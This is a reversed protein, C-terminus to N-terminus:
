RATVADPRLRADRSFLYVALALALTLAYFGFLWQYATEPAAPDATATVISGTLFQMLAVGGISFFNMLTVGRGILAPPIFSKAHATMVGYGVCAAGILVLAATVAALGSQPAAALFICAGIALIVGASLVWKRTNLWNDLPGYVFSGMAMALAMALTVQGILITDAGYVEALFPGTWLGRIGGATAYYVLTLPIIFWLARIRLVALFGAFGPPGDPDDIREPDRVLLLIALAVLVTAAGLLGVVPRWGYAEAAAAMPAAGIINGLNGLGIFVSAMLAFRAADYGRAIIVYSAMLVPACGIGILAMAAVIATPTWAVAFLAVGAAAVLMFLATTRRPGFRDLAVGVAFQMLAFAAFWVGSALSLDAKTMGLDAGLAPTLVALFSRYFQSFVYALCLAALGAMKM